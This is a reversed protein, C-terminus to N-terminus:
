TSKSLYQVIKFYRVQTNGNKWKQFYECGKSLLVFIGSCTIAKSLKFYLPITLLISLVEHEYAKYRLYMALKNRWKLPILDTMVCSLFSELCNKKGYMGRKLNHQKRNQKGQLKQSRFDNTDKGTKMM